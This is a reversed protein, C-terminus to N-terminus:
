SKINLFFHNGTVPPIKWMYSTANASINSAVVIWPNSEGLKAAPTYSLTIKEQPRQYTFQDYGWSVNFLPTGVFAIALTNNPSQFVFRGSAGGNQCSPGKDTSTSNRQNNNNDPSNTTQPKGSSQCLVSSISLFILLPKLQM